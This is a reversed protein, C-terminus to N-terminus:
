HCEKSQSKDTQVDVDSRVARQLGSIGVGHRGIQALHFRRPSSRSDDRSKKMGNVSHTYRDAHSYIIDGSTLHEEPTALM